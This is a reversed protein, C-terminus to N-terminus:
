KRVGGWCFLSSTVQWKVLKVSGLRMPSQLKALDLTTIEHFLCKVFQKRFTLFVTIGRLTETRSYQEGPLPRKIQNLKLEINLHEMFQSLLHEAVLTWLGSQESCVMGTFSIKIQREHWTSTGEHKSICKEHDKWLGGCETPPLLSQWLLEQFLCVLPLCVCVTFM